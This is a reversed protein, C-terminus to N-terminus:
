ANSYTNQITVVAAQGLGVTQASQVTRSLMTGGSDFCGIETIDQSSSMNQSFGQITAVAGSSSSGVVSFRGVTPVEAELATDGLAAPTTGTGIGIEAAAAADDAALKALGGNVKM